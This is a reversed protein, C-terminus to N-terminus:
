TRFSADSLRVIVRDWLVEWKRTARLSDSGTLCSPLLRLVVCPAQCGRLAAVQFLATQPPVTALVNMERTRQRQESVQREIMQRLKSSIDFTKTANRPHGYSSTLIEVVSLVKPSDVLVDKELIGRRSRDDKAKLVPVTVGAFTNRDRQAEARRQVGSTTTSTSKLVQSTIQESRDLAVNFHTKRGHLPYASTPTARDVTATRMFCKLKGHVSPRPHAHVKSHGRPHPDHITKLPLMGGGDLTAFSRYRKATIANPHHIEEATSCLLLLERPVFAGFKPRIEAGARGGAGPAPPHLEEPVRQIHDGRSLDTARQRAGLVFVLYLLLFPRFCPLVYFLRNQYLTPLLVGGDESFSGFYIRYVEYIYMLWCPPHFVLYLTCAMSTTRNLPSGM